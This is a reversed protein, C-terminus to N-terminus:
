RDGGSHIGRDDADRPQEERAPQKRPPDASHMWPDAPWGHMRFGWAAEPWIIQGIPTAEHPKVRTWTEMSGGRRPILLYGRIEYPTRKKVRMLLGGFVPDASPKLQVVDAQVHGQGDPNVVEELQSIQRQLERIHALLM